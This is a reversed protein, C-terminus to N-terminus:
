ILEGLSKRKQLVGSKNGADYSNGTGYTGQLQVLGRAETTM